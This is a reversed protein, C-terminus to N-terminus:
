AFDDHALFDTDLGGKLWIVLKVREHTNWRGQYVVSRLRPVPEDPLKGVKNLAPTPHGRMTIIRRPHRTM